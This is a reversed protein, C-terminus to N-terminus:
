HRCQDGSEKNPSKSPRDFLKRDRSSLDGAAVELDLDQGIARILHPCQCRREIFHGALETAGSFQLRLEMLSLFGSYNASEGGCDCVLDSIREVVYVESEIM